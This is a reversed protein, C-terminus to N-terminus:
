PKAQLEGDIWQKRHALDIQDVKRIRWGDATRVWTERQTVEHEVHRLKGDRQQYRSARQITMVAVESASRIDFSTLTFHVEIPPQNNAFWRRTYEKMNEATDHHGDPAFTEFDASRLAFIADADRAGFARELKDYQARIEREVTTQSSACSLLLLVPLMWLTWGGIDRKQEVIGAKRGM